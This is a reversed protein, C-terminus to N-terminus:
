KWKWEGSLIGALIRIFIAFIGIGLFIAILPQFDTVLKVTTTGLNNVIETQSPFNIINYALLNEM